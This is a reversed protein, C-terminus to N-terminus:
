QLVKALLEDVTHNKEHNNSRTRTAKELETFDVVSAADDSISGEPNDGEDSDSGSIIRVNSEKKRPTEDTAEMYQSSREKHVDSEQKGSTEENPSAETHKSSAGSQQKTNVDNFDSSQLRRLDGRLRKVASQGFDKIFTDIPNHADEGTMAHEEICKMNNKCLTNTFGWIVVSQKTVNKNFKKRARMDGLVHSQVPIHVYGTRSTYACNSNDLHLTHQNGMRVVVDMLSTEETECIEWVRSKRVYKAVVGKTSVIYTIYQYLGSFTLMEMTRHLQCSTFIINHGSRVLMNALEVVDGMIFEIYADSACFNGTKRHQMVDHVSITSSYECHRELYTFMSVKSCTKGVMRRINNNKMDKELAAIRLTNMRIHRYNINTLSEDYHSPSIGM